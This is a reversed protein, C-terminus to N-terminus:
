VANINLIVKKMALKQKGSYATAQWLLRSILVVYSSFGYVYREIYLM